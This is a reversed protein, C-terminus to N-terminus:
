KHPGLNCIVLQYNYDSKSFPNTTLQIESILYQNSHILHPGYYLKQRSDKEVSNVGSPPIFARSM